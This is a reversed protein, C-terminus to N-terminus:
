YLLTMLDFNPFYNVSIYNVSKQCQECIWNGSKGEKRGREREREERGRKRM